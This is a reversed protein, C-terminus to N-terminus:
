KKIVVTVFNSRSILEGKKWLDFVVKTHLLTKLIDAGAADWTKLILVRETPNIVIKEKYIKVSHNM